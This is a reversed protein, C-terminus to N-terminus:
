LVSTEINVCLSVSKLYRYFPMYKGIFGSLLNKTLDYIFKTTEVNKVLFLAWFQNPVTPFRKNSVRSQGVSPDM